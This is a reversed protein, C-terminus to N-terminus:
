HIAKCFKDALVESLNTEKVVEGMLNGLYVGGMQAVGISYDNPNAGMDGGLVRRLMMTVLRDSLNPFKDICEQENKFIKLLDLPNWDAFLQAIITSSNPGWGFIKNAIFRFIYEKASIMLSDSLGKKVADVNISNKISDPIEIEDLDYGESVLNTTIEIYREILYDNDRIDELELYAEDLRKKREETLINSVINKIDNM